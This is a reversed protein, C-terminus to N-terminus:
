RVGKAADNHAKIFEKPIECIGGPVFKTDYKVIERDIYQTNTRGRLYIIKNKDKLADELKQNAERSAEEAVAIKTELEKVKAVWADNDWVAGEFFVSTVILAVGAIRAPLAYTRVIPIIKLFYSAFIAFIGALGLLHFIWNPLFNLIWM